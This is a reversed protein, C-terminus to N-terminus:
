LETSSPPHDRQYRWRGLTLAFANALRFGVVRPDLRRDVVVAYGAVKVPRTVLAAAPVPQHEAYRALLPEGNYAYRYTRSLLGAISTPIRYRVTAEPAEGFTFGKISCRIGFDADEGGAGAPLTEDFGDLAEFVQRRCGMSATIAYRHGLYRVSCQGFWESKAEAALWPALTGPDVDIRGGVVDFGDIACRQHMAAVWTAGVVDDADCFLICDASTHAVGVNRAYGASARLPADVVSV